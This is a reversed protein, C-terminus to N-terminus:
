RMKLRYNQKQLSKDSLLIFGFFFFDVCIMFRKDALIEKWAKKMEENDYIGKIVIPCEKRCYPLILEIYRMIKNDKDAKNIYTFDVHRMKELCEPLLQDYLGSYLEINNIGNKGFGKEAVSTREELNGMSFVTSNNNTKAMYQTSIGFETGVELINKPSFYRVLKCLFMNNSRSCSIKGGNYKKSIEKEFNRICDYNTKDLKTKLGKTFLDFMLPSHLSYEDKALLMHHIYDKSLLQRNM